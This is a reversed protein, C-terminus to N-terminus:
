RTRRRGTLVIPPREAREPAPISIGSGLMIQGPLEIERTKREFLTKGNCKVAGSARCTGIDIARIKAERIVLLPGSLSLKLEIEFPITFPPLEGIRVEIEPRHTSKIEHPTLKLRITEDPPHKDPDACDRIQQYGLWAGSLIDVLSVDFIEDIKERVADGVIDWDLGPVATLSTKLAVTAGELCLKAGEVPPNDWMFWKLTVNEDSM